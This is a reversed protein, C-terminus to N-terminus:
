RAGASLDYVFKGTRIAEDIEDAFHDYERRSLAEVKSETWGSKPTIDPVSRPSRVATADERRTDRVPAPTAKTNKKAQDLKFLDVARAAGLVDIENEDYLAKKVWKPQQDAWDIFEPTSRIEIFDPHYGLLENLAKELDREHRIAALDDKTQVIESQRGTNEMIILSKIIDAVDPFETMWAKVQAETKPLKVEDKSVEALRRELDKTRNELTVADAQAKRRLDGYRKKWSEEETSVVPLDPADQLVHDDDTNEDAIEDLYSKNRYRTM